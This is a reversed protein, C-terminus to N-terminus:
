IENLDDGVINNKMFNIYDLAIFRDYSLTKYKWVKYLYSAFKFYYYYNLNDNYYLYIPRVLNFLIRNIGRHKKTTKESAIPAYDMLDSYMRKTFSIFLSRKYRSQLSVFKWFDIMERDWFPLYWTLGYYDYTRVANTVFKTQREEFDFKEFLNCADVNSLERNDFNQINFKLALKNDFNYNGMKFHYNNKYIEDRVENTTVNNKMLTENLHNGAIFDLTFGPMIICNTNIKNTKLLYDIAELEQLHPASYGRGLYNFIKTRSEKNNYKAKMSKKKYPVFYWKLNLYQAVKKSVLVEESNKNGYTYTIINPYNMKKLYYAILRSDQGSSLPIVVTKNNLYDIARNFVNDLVQVYKDYDLSKGNSENKFEYYKEKKVQYNSNITIITANELQQVDHYITKDNTVYSLTILEQVSEDDFSSNFDIINDSIQVCNNNLSYFVPFTRLLDSCIVIRNFDNIVFAFFGTIKGLFDQLNSVNQTKILEVLSYGEYWKDDYFIAGICYYGDKQYWKFANNYYLKINNLM